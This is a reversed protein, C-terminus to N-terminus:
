LHKYAQRTVAWTVLLGAVCAVASGLHSTTAYGFAYIALAPGAIFFGLLFVLACLGTVIAHRREATIEVKSRKPKPKPLTIVQGM